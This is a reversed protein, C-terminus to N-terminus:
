RVDFTQVTHSKLKRATEQATMELSYKGPLLEPLNIELLLVDTEKEKETKLISFLLRIKEGSPFQTLHASFEINPKDIEKHSCHVIAFLKSIGKELTDVLPSHRNSLFPYINAISLPESKSKKKQEISARLYVAEKEPILFLPPYLRLGSDIEEPIEVTSSAVAGEGTELNRLVVRCEYQHGAPLSTIMYHYVPKKPIELFNIEARSSALMDHKRDIIFTVLETKRGAIKEM